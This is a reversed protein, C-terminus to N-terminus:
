IGTGRCTFWKRHNFQSQFLVGPNLIVNQDLTLKVQWMQEIQASTYMLRFFKQKLKGIGHEASVSGGLEVARRAFDEFLELASILEQMDRPLINVHIHNNGIHGFAVWEFHGADCKSKYFDWIEQLFQDPVALDTGLKHIGPYQRKREAIISNITEPVLHRLRKFNDVEREDTAAWSNALDAGCSSITEELASIDFEDTEPDYDMEFFLAARADPSIPPIGAPFGPKNQLDRLLQLTNESYFELYDLALRSDSRLAQTLQVARDDSDLFQIMAIKNQRELLAVEVKTIVGLVGESGIFLDILDMQPATFFGAANKTAPLTYDPINFSCSKGNASFITFSGFPSAFYRGRPIDLYEGNALFVRLGRIWARTPGYRYARAGSANTAVTGGLSATTETPDPPYFYDVPDLKFRALEARISEPADNLGPAQHSALFNELDLLSVGAQASVRWEDLHPDFRVAEIQNFLELSILAGAPPVSGGVLGTRAGAITVPIRQENLDRLVAALEGENKPFFLCDFPKATLRSEDTLYDPYTARIADFGTICKVQSLNVLPATKAQIEHM